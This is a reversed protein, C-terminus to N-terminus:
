LRSRVAGRWRPTQQSSVALLGPDRQGLAILNKSVCGAVYNVRSLRRETKRNQSQPLAVPFEASRLRCRGVSTTVGDSLRVSLRRLSGERCARSSKLRPRAWARSYPTALASRFGDVGQAFPRKGQSSCTWSCWNQRDGSRLRLHSSPGVPAPLGLSTEPVGSGDLPPCCPLRDSRSAIGTDSLAFGGLQGNFSM